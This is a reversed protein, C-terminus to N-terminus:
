EIVGEILPVFRVPELRRLQVGRATKRARVLWQRGADLGDAGQLPAIVAGGPRLQEIWAPHIETACATVLIADFPAAAPWGLRGDDHRLRVNDVGLGQLRAAARASLAEIREISHVCEFLQALVLTQYGSGTGIELVRRPAERLTLESMRAVMWPQSLTQGHGIPLSDARYARDAFAPEVFLHRPARSLVELVRPETIGAEALAAVMRDRVRQSTIGIGAIDEDSFRPRM